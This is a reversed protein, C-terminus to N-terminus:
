SKTKKGYTAGTHWNLIVFLWVEVLGKSLCRANECSYRTSGFAAKTAGLMPMPGASHEVTGAAIVVTRVDDAAATHAVRVTDAVVEAVEAVEAAAVYRDQQLAL